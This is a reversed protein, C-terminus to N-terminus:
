TQTAKHPSSTLGLPKHSSKIRYSQQKALTPHENETQMQSTTLDPNERVVETPLDDVCTEDEFESEDGYSEKRVLLGIREGLWRTKEVVDDQMLKFCMAILAMGFLLYLSCIILKEESGSDLSKGPVMDGFGITTLTVFSFYAGDFVNWNEWVAFLVAGGIIFFVVTLIGVSVPVKEYKLQAHAKRTPKPIFDEVSRSFDVQMERLRNCDHDSDLKEVRVNGESDFPEDDDDDGNTYNWHFHTENNNSIIITPLQMTNAGCGASVVNNPLDVAAKRKFSFKRKWDSSEAQEDYTNSVNKESKAQGFRNMRQWSENPFTSVHRLQPSLLGRIDAPSKMKPITSSYKVSASTKKMLSKRKKWRCYFCCVRSYIFTFLRALSDAINALCLLMLPIGIMAYLITIARGLKTKPCIHGYGITTFVTISYLLAGFYTWQYKVMEDEGDYGEFNVAHMLKTEYDKLLSDALNMWERPNLVAQKKTYSLLEQLIHDSDNKMHGQIDQELPFEIARFVVAGVIAYCTVLSCLGVHSFLLSIVKLFCRKTGVVCALCQRSMSNFAVSNLSQQKILLSSHDIMDNDEMNLEKPTKTDDLRSGDFVFRLSGLGIGTRESYAKMLKILPMDMKVRFTVEKSDQSVVRLQIFDSQANNGESEADNRADNAM